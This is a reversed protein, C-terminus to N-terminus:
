YDHFCAILATCITHFFLLVLFLLRKITHAGNKQVIEM